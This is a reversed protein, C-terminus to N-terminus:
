GGDVLREVAEFGAASILRRLHGVSLGAPTKAGARHAVEEEVATGDMDDAGYSLAVQALGPTVMVWHAKIHPVKDLLLRGVAIERLDQTGTTEPITHSLGLENGETQYALPVYALFGPLGSALASDQAEMLRLLHDVKHRAEEMHGYLMTCNTPIGREHCIRATSLWVDADGKGACIQSRLEADFIEAGGGPCSGLGAAVCRDLFDGVPIGSNRAYFDIEVMTFAKIHISPFRTKVAHFLAEFHTIGLEPNHGGVIHLETVGESCPKELEAVAEQPTLVYGSKYNDERGAPVHFACFRCNAVCINTYSM